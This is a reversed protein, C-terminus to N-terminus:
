LSCCMVLSSGIYCVLMWIVCRVVLPFDVDHFGRIANIATGSLKPGILGLLSSATSLFLALIVLIRYRGIYKWLRKLLKGIPVKKKEFQRRDGSREMRSFRGGMGHGGMMGPGM